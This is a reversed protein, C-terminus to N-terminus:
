ENLARRGCCLVSGALCVVFPYWPWVGCCTRSIVVRECVVRERISACGILHKMRCLQCAGQRVQHTHSWHSTALATPTTSSGSWLM